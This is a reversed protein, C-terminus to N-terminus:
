RGWRECDQTGCGRTSQRVPLFPFTEAAALLRLIASLVVLLFDFLSITAPYNWTPSRFSLLKCRIIINRQAKTWHWCLRFRQPRRQRGHRAPHQMCTSSRICNNNQNNNIIIITILRVLRMIIDITNNDLAARRLGHGASRIYCQITINNNSNRVEFLNNKSGNEVFDVHRM